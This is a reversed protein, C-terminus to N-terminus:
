VSKKRHLQELYFRATTEQIQLSEKLINPARSLRAKVTGLPVKLKKAIGKLDMGEVYRMRVAERYIAPLAEVSKLVFAGIDQAVTEGPSTTGPPAAQEINEDLVFPRMRGERHQLILNRLIGSFWMGLTGRDPDYKDLSNYVRSIAEHAVDLAEVEDLHLKKRIVGVLAGYESLVFRDVDERSPRTM